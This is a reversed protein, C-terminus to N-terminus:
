QKSETLIPCMGASPLVDTQLASPITISTANVMRAIAAHFPLHILTSSTTSNVTVKVVTGLQFLYSERWEDAILTSPDTVRM